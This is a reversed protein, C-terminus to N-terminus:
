GGLKLAYILADDTNEYYKKRRGTQQFGFSEYLSIAAANNHNVELFLNKIGVAAAEDTIKKILASAIKRRRFNRSVAVNLIDADDLIRLFGCFAVVKGEIEAIYYTSGPNKLESLFMGETWPTKFSQREIDLVAPLDNETMLRIKM